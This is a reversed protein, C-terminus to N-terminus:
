YTYSFNQSRKYFRPYINTIFQRSSQIIQKFVYNMTRDRWKINKKMKQQQVYRM